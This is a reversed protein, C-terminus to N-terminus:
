TLTTVPMGAPTQSQPKKPNGHPIRRLKQYMLPQNLPVRRGAQRFRPLLVAQWKSTWLVEKPPGAILSIQGSAKRGVTVPPKGNFCSYAMKLGEIM